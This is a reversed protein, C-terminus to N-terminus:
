FYRIYYEAYHYEYLCFHESLRNQRTHTIGLVSPQLLMQNTMRIRSIQNRASTSQSFDSLHNSQLLSPPTSFTLQPTVSMSLFNNLSRLADMLSALAIERPSAFGERRKTTPVGSMFVIRLSTSMDSRSKALAIPTVAGVMCFHSFQTSFGQNQVEEREQTIKKSLKQVVKAMTKGPKEVLNQVCKKSVKLPAAIKLYVNLGVKLM